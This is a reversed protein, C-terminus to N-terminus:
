KAVTDYSVAMFFEQAIKIKEEVLIKKPRYGRVTNSLLHKIKAKAEEVSSAEKVGGAKGRGGLPIQVKLMAPGNLQIEDASAVLKGPPTPIGYLNLIAKSEHELM